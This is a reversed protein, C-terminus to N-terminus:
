DMYGSRTVRRGLRPPSPKAEPAALAAEAPAPARLLDELDGQTAPAQVEREAELRSWIEDPLGRVGWKIAAAEAQLHTDLAENAQSPDKTWRYVM